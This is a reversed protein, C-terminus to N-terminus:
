RHLLAHKHRRLLQPICETMSLMTDTISVQVQWTTYSRGHHLRSRRRGMQEMVLGLILPVGLVIMQAFGQTLIVGITGLIDTGVGLVHYQGGPNVYVALVFILLVLILPVVLGYLIDSLKFKEPEM